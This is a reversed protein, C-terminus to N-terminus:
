EEEEKMRIIFYELYSVLDFDLTDWPNEDQIEQREVGEKYYKEWKDKLQEIKVLIGREYKHMANLGRRCEEAKRGTLIKTIPAWYFNKGKARAKMICYSFLLMDKELPDFNLRKLSYGDIDIM